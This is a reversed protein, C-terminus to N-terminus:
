WAVTFGTGVVLNGVSTGESGQSNSLYQVFVNLMAHKVIEIKLGARAGITLGSTSAESISNSTGYTQRNMGIDGEIFPYMNSGTQFNYAPALVVLLSTASAGGFSTEEFSLPDFGLEFGKVPFYGVFPSFLFTSSGNGASVQGSFSISGSLEVCGSSAFGKSVNTSQSAAPTDPTASPTSSQAKMIVGNLLFAFLFFYTKM